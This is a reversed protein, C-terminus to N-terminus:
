HPPALPVVRLTRSRLEEPDTIGMDAFTMLMGALAAKLEPDKKWDRYPDHATLVQWVDRLVRELTVLTAEDYSRPPNISAM